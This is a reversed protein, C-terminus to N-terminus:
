EEPAHILADRPQGCGPVACGAARTYHGGSAFEALKWEKSSGMRTLAATMSNPRERFPHSRRPDVDENPQKRRPIRM